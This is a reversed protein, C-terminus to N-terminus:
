MSTGSARELWGSGAQEPCGVKCACHLPCPSLGVRFCLISSTIRLIQCQHLWSCQCSLHRVLSEASLVACRLSAQSLRFLLESQTQHASWVQQIAGLWFIWPLSQEAKPALASPSESIISEHYLSLLGLLAHIGEITLESNNFRDPLLWTLNSLGWESASVLEANSRVLDRYKHLINSFPYM